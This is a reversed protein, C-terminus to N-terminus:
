PNKLWELCKERSGFIRDVTAKSAKSLEDDPFMKIAEEAPRIGLNGWIQAHTIYEATGEKLKWTEVLGPKAHRKRAKAQAEKKKLPRGRMVSGATKQLLKYWDRGSDSQVTVINAIARQKTTDISVIFECKDHIEREVIFFNIGVGTGKKTALGQLLPVVAAENGRLNNIFQDIENHEYIRDELPALGLKEIISHCLDLQEDRDFRNVKGLYCM